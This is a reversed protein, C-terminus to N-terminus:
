CKGYRVNQFNINFCFKISIKIKVSRQPAEFPKIFAKLAKMFGKQPGVFFYSFLFKLSIKERRGPNPHSPNFIVIVSHNNRQNLMAWFIFTIFKAAEAREQHFYTFNGM